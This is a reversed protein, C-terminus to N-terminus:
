RSRPDGCPDSVQPTIIYPERSESGTAQEARTVWPLLVQLGRDVMAEIVVYPMASCFFSNESGFKRSILEADGEELSLPSILLPRSSKVQVSSSSVFIRLFSSKWTTGSTVSNYRSHKKSLAFTPSYLRANTAFSAM